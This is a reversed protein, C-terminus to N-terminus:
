LFRGVWKHVFMNAWFPRCEGRALPPPAATAARPLLTISHTGNPQSAPQSSRESERERCPPFASTIAPSGRGRRRGARMVSWLDQPAREAAAAHTTRPGPQQRAPQCRPARGVRESARQGKKAAQTTNNHFSLQSQSEM